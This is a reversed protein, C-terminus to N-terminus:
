KINNIADKIDLRKTMEDISTKLETIGSEKIGTSVENKIYMSGAYLTLALVAAGVIQTWLMAGSLKDQNSKLEDILDVKKVDIRSDKIEKLTDAIDKQTVQFNGIKDELLPIRKSHDDVKVDIGELKKEVRELIAIIQNEYSSKPM